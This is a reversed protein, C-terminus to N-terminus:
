RAAALVNDVIEMLEAPAGDIDPYPLAAHRDAERIAEDEPMFGVFEFDSMAEKLAEREEPGRIRNGIVKINTVGLDAALKRIRRAAYHSRSGADVVVLLVNVARSTARGLHEVGAEMDMIVADDQSLLLHQILNKLLVSEPCVCGSGGKEVTGMVLLKVGSPSEAAYREPIDDVRPNMKFYGGFTGPQAGTREMILEKLESIPTPMSAEPLGLSAGLNTVPDADVAIVRKGRSALARALLASLTTKGVGGKGSVAIKLGMGTEGEM